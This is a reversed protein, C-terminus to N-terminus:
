VDCMSALLVLYGFSHAIVIVIIIAISNKSETETAIVILSCIMHKRLLSSCALAHALREAAMDRNCVVFHLAGISM